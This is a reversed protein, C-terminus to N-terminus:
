VRGWSRRITLTLEETDSIDEATDLEILFAGASATGAQYFFRTEIRKLAGVFTGASWTFVADRYFDGSTYAQVDVSTPGVFIGSQTAIRVFSNSGTISGIFGPMLSGSSGTSTLWNGGLQKTTAPTSVENLDFAGDVEEDVAITSYLSSKVTVRLGEDSEVSIVAPENQEDRFLQRNYYASNSANSLGLETLNGTCSGIAFSYTGQWYRWCPDGAEIDGVSYDTTTSGFFSNTSALFSTLGTQSVAPEESGTGVNLYRIASVSSDEPIIRRALSLQDLGTNLITNRFWPGQYTITGDARYKEARFECGLKIEPLIFARSKDERFIRKVKYM